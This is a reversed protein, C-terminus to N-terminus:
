AAREAAIARDYLALVAEHGDVDNIEVPVREDLYLAKIAAPGDLAEDETTDLVHYVAGLACWCTASPENPEVDFGQEDRAYYGHTWRSEDAILDRAKQLVEATTM